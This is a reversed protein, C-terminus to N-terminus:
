GTFAWNRAEQAAIDPVDAIGLLPCGRRRLNELMMRGFPDHPGIMEYSVLVARACHEAFWGVVADSAASEMYVLVCEAVVLTPEGTRWGASWMASELESVDNIDAALLRYGTEAGGLDANTIPRSENRAHGDGDSATAPPIRDANAIAFRADSDFLALRDLASLASLWRWGEGSPQLVMGAVLTVYISGLTSFYHM